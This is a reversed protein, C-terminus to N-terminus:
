LIPPKSPNVKLPQDPVQGKLVQALKAKRATLWDLEVFRRVVFVELIRIEEVIAIAETPEGEAHVREHAIIAALKYVAPDDSSASRAEAAAYLDSEGNLYIPWREDLTFATKFRKILDRQRTDIVRKYDLYRNMDLIVILRASLQEVSQKEPTLRVLDKVANKVVAPLDTGSRIAGTPLHSTLEKIIKDSHDNYVQCIASSAKSCLALTCAVCFALVKTM